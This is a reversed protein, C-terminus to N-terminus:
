AVTCRTGACPPRLSNETEQQDTCQATCRQDYTTVSMNGHQIDKKTGRHHKSLLIDMGVQKIEDDISM